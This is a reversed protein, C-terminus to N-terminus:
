KWNWLNHYLFIRALYLIFNKSIPNFDCFLCNLYSLSWANITSQIRAHWKVMTNWVHGGRSSIPVPTFVEQIHIKYRNTELISISIRLFPTSFEYCPYLTCFFLLFLLFFNHINTYAFNLMEMEFKIASTVLSRLTTTDCAMVDM